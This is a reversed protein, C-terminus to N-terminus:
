VGIAGTFAGYAIWALLGLVILVGWYKANKADIKRSRLIDQSTEMQYLEARCASCVDQILTNKLRPTGCLKCEKKLKM